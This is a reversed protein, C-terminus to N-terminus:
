GVQLDHQVATATESEGGRREDEPCQYEREIFHSKLAALFRVLDPYNRPRELIKLVEFQFCADIIATPPVHTAWVIISAHGLGQTARITKLTEGCTEGHHLCDVIVLDPRTSEGCYHGLAARSCKGSQVEEVLADWRAHRFAERMLFLEAPHDDIVLIRTPRFMYEWEPHSIEIM